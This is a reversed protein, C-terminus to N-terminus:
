NKFQDPNKFLEFDQVYDKGTIMAIEAKQLISVIQHTNSAPFSFSETEIPVTTTFHISFAEGVDYDEVRYDDKQNLFYVDGESLVFRRTAMIHLASGGTKIGVIHNKRNSTIWRAINPRYRLVQCVEKVRLEGFKMLTVGRANM